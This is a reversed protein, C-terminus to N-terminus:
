HIHFITDHLGDRSHRIQMPRIGALAVEFAGRSCSRLDKTTRKIEAVSLGIGQLYAILTRSAYRRCGMEVWLVKCRWGKM